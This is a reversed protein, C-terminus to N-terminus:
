VATRAARALPPGLTARLKELPDVLADAKTCDIGVIGHLWAPMAVPAIVMPILRRRREGMDLVKCVIAEEQCNGSEVYRPSVIALTFRSQRICREMEELFAAHAPFDREDIAVRYGDSELTQLLQTAFEADRGGHRYSLFADYVVASPEATIPTAGTTVFALPGSPVLQVAAILCVILLPMWMYHTSAIRVRCQTISAATWAWAPDGQSAFLIDDRTEDANKKTYDLGLPTLETGVVVDTSAYRALCRRQIAGSSAFSAIGLALATLAILVWTRRGAASRRILFPAISAAVIGASALAGFTAATRAGAGSFGPPAPALVAAGAAGVIGALALLTRGHRALARRLDTM